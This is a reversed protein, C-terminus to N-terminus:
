QSIGLFGEIKKVFNISLAISTKYRQYLFFFSNDLSACSVTQHRFLDSSIRAVSSGFIPSSCPSRFVSMKRSFLGDTRHSSFSFSRTRSSSALTLAVAISPENPVCFSCLARRLTLALVFRVSIRYMKKPMWMTFTTCNASLISCLGWDITAQRPFM